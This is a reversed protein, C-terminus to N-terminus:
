ACLVSSWTPANKMRWVYTGSNSRMLRRASATSGTPHTSSIARMCFLAANRCDNKPYKSLRPQKRAFGNEDPSRIFCLCASAAALQPHRTGLVTMVFEGASANAAAPSPSSTSLGGAPPVSALFISASTM